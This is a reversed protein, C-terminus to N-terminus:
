TLSEAALAEEFAKLEEQLLKLAVDQYAKLHDPVQSMSAEAKKVLEKQHAIEKEIKKRTDM